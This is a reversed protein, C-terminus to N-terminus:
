GRSGSCKSSPRCGTKLATPKTGCKVNQIHVREAFFSAITWSGTIRRSRSISQLSVITRMEEPHRRLLFMSQLREDLSSPPEEVEAVRHPEVRGTTPVESRTPPRYVLWPGSSRNRTSTTSVARGTVRPSPANATASSCCVGNKRRLVLEGRAASDNLHPGPRQRRRTRLGPQPRSQWRALPWVRSTSSWGM